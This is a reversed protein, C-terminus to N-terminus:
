QGAEIRTGLSDYIGDIVPTGSAAGSVVAVRSRTAFIQTRFAMVATDGLRVRERDGAELGLRRYYDINEPPTGILRGRVAAGRPDILAHEAHGRAYFGGGLVAADPETRALESIYVMAPVEPLDDRRAHEPTTGTLAHGPEVHTAGHAALVPITSCSSLSPMSVVPDIGRDRLVGAAAEVLEGTPTLRPEGTDPALLVCPFGTVGVARVAAMRDSEELLVAVDALDIGGEQAPYTSAPDGAIRLLVDQVIGAREAAAAVAALNARDYVTVHSPRWALAEDLARVPIQVLHGVNGLEVGASRLVRAERLDIAAARPLHRAIRAALAPNRGLQKVVFWATVGHEAAVSALAAANAEVADADVVYTDAEVRGDAHLQAAADVLLPNRRLLADLFM